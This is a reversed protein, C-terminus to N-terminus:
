LAFEERKRGAAEYERLWVPTMGRGSWTKGSAPDKFKAPAKKGADKRKARRSGALYPELANMKEQLSEMETEALASIRAEVADRLDTLEALSLKELTIDAM